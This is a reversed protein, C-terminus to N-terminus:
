DIFTVGIKWMEEEKDWKIYNLTCARSDALENKDRVVFRTKDRAAACVDGGDFCQLLSILKGTNEKSSSTRMSRWTNWKRKTSDKFAFDWYPGEQWAEMKFDSKPAVCVRDIGFQGFAVTLEGSAGLPPKV